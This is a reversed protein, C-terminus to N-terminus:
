MKSFMGYVPGFVAVVIWGIMGGMVLTISPQIMGVLKDISDNIERDYFFKINQLASEMNGSDEGVKFMRSVLSPFYGTAAISRALKQGDSVQQKAGIISNKIARNKIVGASADLCELVGLGSKFTMSFFQCFKAADIKTMIPGIMPIKLVFDDIIISIRPSRGLIKAAAWVIPPFSLMYPWNNQVFDSFAILSLTALPLDIGQGILFGTVKPVVVTTMAGTVGCMVVIGFSPGITAKRVKRKMDMSWKLDDIISEFSNVLTGTKEGSQLLGVYIPNFVNPHKALSESFLSGNKISEHIEHMLHKIKASDATDKLDVISDIISVGSKELQHLHVFITILDKQTIGSLFGFSAEKKQSYSILEFGDRKLINALEYPDDVYLFGVKKKGFDNIAKYRYNPM